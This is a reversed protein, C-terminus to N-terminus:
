VLFESISLINCKTVQARANIAHMRDMIQVAANVTNLSIMVDDGNHVSDSFGSVDFAGAIDMYAWNLVTNMFTTLRWGSLLTGNLRYWENKNPDLAFMNAVSLITWKMAKRQGESMYNKYSDYTGNICAQM